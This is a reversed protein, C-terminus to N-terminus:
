PPHSDAWLVCTRDGAPSRFPEMIAEVKHGVNNPLANRARGVSMQGRIQDALIQCLTSIQRSRQSRRDSLDKQPSRLGKPFCRLISKIKVGSIGCSTM